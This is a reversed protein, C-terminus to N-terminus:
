SSCHLLRVGSHLRLECFNLLYLDLRDNLMGDLTGGTFPPDRGPGGHLFGGGGGRLVCVGSFIGKM